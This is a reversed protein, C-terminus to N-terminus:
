EIELAPLFCSASSVSFQFRTEPVILRKSCSEPFFAQHEARPNGANTCEEAGAIHITFGKSFGSRWHGRTRHLVSRM